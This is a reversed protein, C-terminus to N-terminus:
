DRGSRAGATEPQKKRPVNEPNEDVPAPLGLNTYFKNILEQFLIKEERSSQEGKAVINKVQLWDNGEGDSNTLDEPVTPAKKTAVSKAVSPIQKYVL